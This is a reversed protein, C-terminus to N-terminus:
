RVRGSFSVRGRLFQEEWPLKDLVSDVSGLPRSVIICPSNIRGQNGPIFRLFNFWGRGM